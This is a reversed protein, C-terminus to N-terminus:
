RDWWTNVGRSRLTRGELERFAPMQRRLEALQKPTLEPQKPTKAAMLDDRIRVITAAETM